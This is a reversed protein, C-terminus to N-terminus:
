RDFQGDYLKPASVQEPHICIVVREANPPDLDEPPEEGNMGEMFQRRFFARDPDDQLTAHGRVEIYHMPNTFSQVCFTVRSDQQINKFKMRSKLTSIRLQEGDWVYGVPNTSLLGDARVTTLMAFHQDRLLSHHESPITAPSKKEMMM